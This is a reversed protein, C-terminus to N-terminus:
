VQEELEDYLGLDMEALSEFTMNEITETLGKYTMSDVDGGEVLVRFFYEREDKYETAAIRHEMELLMALRDEEIIYKKIPEGFARKSM